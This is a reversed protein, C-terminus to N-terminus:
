QERADLPEQDLEDAHVRRIRQEPEVHRLRLQNGRAAHDGSDEHHPPTGGGGGACRRRASARSGPASAKTDSPKEGFRQRYEVAFRGMHDFGWLAAIDVIREELCARRLAERVRAFRANRLYAMPSVGTANRFHRFLARGSVGAVRVIDEMTVPATLNAEIYDVARQANRLVPREELKEVFVSV